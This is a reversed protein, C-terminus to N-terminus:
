IGQPMQRTGVRVYLPGYGTTAIARQHPGKIHLLRSIDEITKPYKAQTPKRSRVSFPQAHIIALQGVLTGTANSSFIPPKTPM